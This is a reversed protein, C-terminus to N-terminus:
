SLLIPRSLVHKSIGTSSINTNLGMCRWSVGARVGPIPSVPGHGTDPGSIGSTTGGSEGKCPGGSAHFRIPRPGWLGMVGRSYITGRSSFIQHRDRRNGCKLGKALDRGVQGPEAQREFPIDGDAQFSLPRHAREGQACAVGRRRQSVCHWERLAQHGGTLGDGHREGPARREAACAWVRADFGELGATGIIRGHRQVHRAQADHPRKPGEVTRRVGERVVVLDPSNAVVTVHARPSRGGPCGDCPDGPGVQAVPGNRCGLQGAM